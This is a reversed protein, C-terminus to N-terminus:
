YRLYSHVVLRVSELVYNEEDFKPKQASADCGFEDLFWGCGSEISRIHDWVSKCYREKNNQTTWVGNEFLIKDPNNSAIDSRVTDFYEEKDQDEDLDRVFYKNEKHRNITLEKVEGTSSRYVIECDHSIHYDCGM